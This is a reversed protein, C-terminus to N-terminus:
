VLMKEKQKRLKHIYLIKFGDMGLWVLFFLHEVYRFNFVLWSFKNSSKKKKPFEELFHESSLFWHELSAELEEM